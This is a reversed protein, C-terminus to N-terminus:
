WRTFQCRGVAPIKCINPLNRAARFLRRVQRPGEIQGQYLQQHAAQRLVPCVCPKNVQRLQNCCLRLAPGRQEDALGGRQARRRLYRQCARLHQHQQFQRRCLPE